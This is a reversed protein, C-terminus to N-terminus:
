PPWNPAAARSPPRYWSGAEARLWSRTYVATAPQPGSNAVTVSYTLTQGVNVPDPSDTVSVSLDNRFIADFMASDGQHSAADRARLFAGSGPALLTLSGTWSGDVFAGSNTPTMTLPTLAPAAYAAISVPGNFNTVTAGFEDRATITATFAENVFQTPAIASWDFHDVGRTTFRWVPGPTSGARRSVVQWYYTTAPALTPLSWATVDTTTGVLQAVGPAPNTGFYVDYSTPVTADGAQWGLDATAIVDTAFDAPSPNIPPLPSEDDLVLVNLM